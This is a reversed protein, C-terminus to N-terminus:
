SKRITLLTGKAGPVAGKVLLLNKDEIVKVVELNKVTVNKSGMQGPMKKGPYVRGPTACQGISGPARKFHSGHTARGGGFGHRKIVGQFGRGRTIGTITLKETAEFTTVPITDGVKVEEGSPFKFEKLHKLPAIKHKDLHGKEAKSLKKPSKKEILGLQVASYGDTEPTKVQTVVCPGAEVVTVPVVRGEEDFVQTMGIKKGILGKIM